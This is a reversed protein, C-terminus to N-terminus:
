RSSSPDRSTCGSQGCRAARHNAVPVYSLVIGGAIAAGVLYYPFSWLYCQRWVESFSKGDVLSLVLSIMGTNLLFYVCVAVVLLVLQNTGQVLAHSVLFAIAVSVVLTSINFLVQIVAPRKRPKWLCQILAAICGLTITETLTLEAVGILIFLFNVSMTGRIKPLKIKLTSALCALLLYGFYRLPDTFQREFLLCAALISFGIVITSNIYLKANTPM